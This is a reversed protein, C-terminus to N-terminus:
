QNVHFRPDSVAVRLTSFLAAQVELLERPDGYRHPKAANQVGAAASTRGTAASRKARGAPTKQLPADAYREVGVAQARPCCAARAPWLTSYVHAERKQLLQKHRVAVAAERAAERLERAEIQQQDVVKRQCGNGRVLAAVQQLQEIITHATAGGDDGALQFTACRMGAATPLM